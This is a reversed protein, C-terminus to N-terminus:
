RRKSEESRRRRHRSRHRPRRRDTRPAAGRSRRDIRDPGVRLDIIVRFSKGKDYDIAAVYAQRPFDVGPRFEEVIKKPPEALAIWAFNTTTSFRGSQALIDRIAVLEGADLPDLPHTPAASAAQCCAFAAVIITSAVTRWASEAMRVACWRDAHM